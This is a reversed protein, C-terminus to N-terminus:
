NQREHISMLRIPIGDCITMSTDYTYSFIVPMASKPDIDFTNLNMPHLLANDEKLILWASCSVGHTFVGKQFVFADSSSKKCAGLSIVLFIILCFKM